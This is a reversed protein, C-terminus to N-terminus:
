YEVRIEEPYGDKIYTRLRVSEVAITALVPKGKHKLLPLTQHLLFAGNLKATLETIMKNIQELDETFSVRGRIQATQLDKEGIVTLVVSPNEIMNKYKQTEAKTLFFIKSDEAVFYITAADIVGTKRLTSLVAINYHNLFSAVKEQDTM